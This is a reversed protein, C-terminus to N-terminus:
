GRSRAPRTAAPRSSAGGATRRIAELAAEAAARVEADPDDSLRKLAAAQEAARKGAQGLAEAARLRVVWQPDRLAAALMARAAPSRGAIARLAGVAELRRRPEARLGEALVAAFRAPLRGPQEVIGALACAAAHRVEPEEDGLAAVLAREGAESGRVIAGLLRAARRRVATDARQLLDAVAPAAPRGIRRLAEAAALRETRTGLLFPDLLFPVTKHAHRKSWSLVYAAEISREIDDGELRALLRDQAAPELRNVLPGLRELPMGAFLAETLLAPPVNPDAGYRQIIEMAVTRTRWGGDRISSVAAAVGRRRDLRGLTRLALAPLHDQGQTPMTELMDMTATGHQDVCHILVEAAAASWAPDASALAPLVHREQFEGTPEGGELVERIARYAVVPKRAPNRGDRPPITPRRYPTDFPRSEAGAGASNGDCDGRGYRADAADLADLFAARESLGGAPRTAPEAAHAPGISARATALAVACAVLCWLRNGVTHRVGRPM